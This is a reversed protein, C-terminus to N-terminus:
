RTRTVSCDSGRPRSHVQKSALPAAERATTHDRGRLLRSWCRDETAGCGPIDGDVFCFGVIGISSDAFGPLQPHDLTADIDMLVGDDTLGEFLPM